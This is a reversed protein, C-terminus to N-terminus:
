NPWGDEEEEDEEDDEDEDEDDDEDEDTDEDEDPVLDAPADEVGFAYLRAYKLEEVMQIIQSKPVGIAM